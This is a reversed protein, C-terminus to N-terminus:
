KAATVTLRLGLSDVLRCVLDFSPNGEPSLAKYLGERTIGADRALQSMNRARAVTNLASTITGVDGEAEEIASSLFAAVIEPSDLHEAVDFRRFTMKKKAM